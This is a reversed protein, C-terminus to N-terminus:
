ISARRWRLGMACLAMAAIAALTLGAPEPIPTFDVELRPRWSPLSPWESSAVAFRIKPNIRLTFGAHTAADQWLTQVFATVDVELAPASLPSETPLEIFALPNDVSFDPIEVVGNGAYGDIRLEAFDGPVQARGSTQMFLTASTIISQPPLGALDFELAGRTENPLLSHFTEINEADDDLLIEFVGDRIGGTEPDDKDKASRDSVPIVSITGAQAPTGVHGLLIATLVCTLQRHM